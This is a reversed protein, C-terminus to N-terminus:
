GETDAVVKREVITGVEPYGGGLAGEVDKSGCEM